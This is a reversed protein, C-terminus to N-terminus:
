QQTIPRLCVSPTEDERYIDNQITKVKCEAVLSKNDTQM